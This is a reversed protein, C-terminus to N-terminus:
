LIHDSMLRNDPFGDSLNPLGQVTHHLALV